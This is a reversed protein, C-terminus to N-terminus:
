LYLNPVSTSRVGSQVRHRANSRPGKPPDITREVPGIYRTAADPTLRVTYQSYLSVMCPVMAVSPENVRARDGPVISRFCSAPRAPRRRRKRDGPCSRPIVTRNLSQVLFLSTRRPTTSSRGGAEPIRPWRRDHPKLVIISTEDVRITYTVDKSLKTSNSSFFHRFPTPDAHRDIRTHLRSIRGVDNARGTSRQTLRM